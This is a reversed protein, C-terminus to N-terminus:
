FVCQLLCLDLMINGRGGERGSNAFRIVGWSYHGTTQPNTKRQSKLSKLLKLSVSNFILHQELLHTLTTLCHRALKHRAKPLLQFTLLCFAQIAIMQSPHPWWLSRPITQSINSPNIISFSSINRLFVSPRLDWLSCVYEWIASKAKCM